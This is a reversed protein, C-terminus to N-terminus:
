RAANMQPARGAALDELMTDLMAIEPLSIEHARGPFIDSRLRAGGLALENAAEAYAHVPIWPDADGGTLYVPMGATLAAPRTCGPRGVRCGTLSAVAEVPAGGAFAHELSLCAGQSFGALLIPRGPAEARLEAVLAGLDRLAQELERRTQDSLPDVALAAYWSAGHACPAVYAADACRLQGLVAAQMDEPTQNRGHVFICVVKARAVPVGSRVTEAIGPM